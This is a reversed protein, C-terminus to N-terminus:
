GVARSWAFFFGFYVVAFIMVAWCLREFKKSELFKEVTNITNDRLIERTM